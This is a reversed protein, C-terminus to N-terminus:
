AGGGDDHIACLSCKRKYTVFVFVFVFVCVCLECGSTSYTVWGSHFGVSLPSVSFCGFPMLMLVLSRPMFSCVNFSNGLPMLGYEIAGQTASLSLCAVM